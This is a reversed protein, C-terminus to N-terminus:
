NGGVQWHQMDESGFDRTDVTTVDYVDDYQQRLQRYGIDSIIAGKVFFCDSGSSSGGPDLTWYGTKDALAAYAKPKIYQKAEGSYGDVATVSFPIFLRVSDADRLGSKQINTGQARELFVGALITVNYNLELTNPDESVNYITVVHPAYM